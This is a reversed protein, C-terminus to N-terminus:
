LLLLIHQSVGSVGLNVGWQMCVTQPHPPLLFYWAKLSSTPFKKQPESHQV